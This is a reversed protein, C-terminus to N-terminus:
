AVEAMSLIMPLTVEWVAPIMGAERTARFLFLTPFRCAPVGWANIMTTTTMARNRKTARTSVRILMNIRAVVGIGDPGLAFRYRRLWQQSPSAFRRDWGGRALATFAYRSDSAPDRKPRALTMYSPQLNYLPGEMPCDYEKLHLLLTAWSSNKNPVLPNGM